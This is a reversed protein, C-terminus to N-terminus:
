LGTHTDVHQHMIVSLNRRVKTHTYKCICEGLIYPYIYINNTCMCVYMRETCVGYESVRHMKIHAKM